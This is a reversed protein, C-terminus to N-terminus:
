SGPQAIVGRQKLTLDVLVAGVVVKGGTVTGTQTAFLIDLTDSTSLIVPELVGVPTGYSGVAAGDFDWGDVVNDVDGGTFGIDFTLDTSTGTMAATKQAWAALLMTGAPIRLVELVDAAALASGKATVAEALDVEKWITYPMMSNDMHRVTTGTAGAPNALTTITAM